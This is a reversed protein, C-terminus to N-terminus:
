IGEKKAKLKALLEQAKTALDIKPYNSEQEEQTALPDLIVLLNLDDLTLPAPTAELKARLHKIAVIKLPNVSDWQEFWELLEDCDNRNYESWKLLASPTKTLISFWYKYVVKPANSAILLHTAISTPLTNPQEVIRSEYRSVLKRSNLLQLEENEQAQAKEKLLQKLALNDEIIRRKESDILTLFAPLNGGTSELSLLPLYNIDTQNNIWITLSVAKSVQSEVVQPSLRLTTSPLKILPNKSLLTCFLLDKEIPSLSSWNALEFSPLLKKLPLSTIPHAQSIELPIPSPLKYSYGTVPCNIVAHHNM